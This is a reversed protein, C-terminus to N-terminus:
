QGEHKLKRKAPIGVVISQAEINKNVFSMSGVTTNHGIRIGYHLVANTGIFCDKEIYAGGISDKDKNLNNTMVRPCLYCNDEIIVGRALITEYRLTVHNGVKVNGSSSVKSDIYCSDGLSTNARLEIYNRFECNNGIITGAQIHCYNGIVVNDGIIVNEEIINFEGIKFNKGIKAKDSIINTNM